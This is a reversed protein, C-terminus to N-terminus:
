NQQGILYIKLGTGPTTSGIQVIDVTIEDDDSFTNTSIVPQTSSTKSTKHTPDININTSLISSGNKNINIILKSGFPATTLSAKVTSLLFNYPMRITIVNTGVALATTEDSCAFSITEFIPSWSGGGYTDNCKWYRGVTAGSSINLNTTNTNSNVTLDGYITTSDLKAM